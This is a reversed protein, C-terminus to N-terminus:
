EINKILIFGAWNVPHSLNRDYSPREEGDRRLRKSIFSRQTRALTDELSLGPNDNLIQYFQLMFPAASADRVRWLTGVVARSKSSQLLSEASTRWPTGQLAEIPVATDCASLVLLEPGRAGTPALLRTLDSVPVLADRGEGTLLNASQWDSGGITFHTAFHMIPYRGGRVANRLSTRTFEENLWREGSFLGSREGAKRVIGKLEEEVGPLPEAEKTGKSVGFAAVLPDTVFKGSRGGEAWVGLSYQEVLYREGDHVVAMPLNSLVRDLSLWITKIGVLRPKLPAIIERYFEQALEQTNGQQGIAERLQRIKEGLEDSAIRWVLPTIEDETVLLFTTQDPLVFSLLVAGANKTRERVARLQRQVNEIAGDVGRSKTACDGLKLTNCEPKWNAELVRLINNIAVHWAQVGDELSTLERQEALSLTARRADLENQRAVSRVITAVGGDLRDALELEARSMPIKLLVLERTLGERRVYEGYESQRLMLLVDAAEAERGQETFLKALWRYRDEHEKLFCERIDDPLDDLLRRADQLKNVARKALALALDRDGGQHAAQSARSLNCSSETLAFYGDASGYRQIVSLENFVAYSIIIPRIYNVDSLTQALGLAVGMTDQATSFDAKSAHQRAEAMYQESAQRVWSESDGNEERDRELIWLAAVPDGLTAAKFYLQRVRDDAPNALEVLQASLAALAHGRECSARMLEEVAVKVKGQRHALLWTRIYMKVGCNSRLDPLDFPLGAQWMALFARATENGREVALKLREFEWDGPQRWYQGRLSKLVRVFPAELSGAAELFSLVADPWKSSNDYDTKLQEDFYRVNPKRLQSFTSEVLARLGMTRFAIIREQDPLKNLYSLIQRDQSAKEIGYSLSGRVDRARRAWDSAKSLDRPIGEGLAYMNSLNMQASISGRSAAKEFWRVAEKADKQVGRGERYLVGLAGQSQLNGQEAAKRFWHAAQASDQTIGFGNYYMVGLNAQAEALGQLAAREYWQFAESKDEEVDKGEFYMGGLRLQAKVNGQEAAKRLWRLAEVQNKEAIQGLAYRTGLENQADAHGQEAAKRLWVLSEEVLENTGESYVLALSYQADRQGLEASRRLWRLALAHGQDAAQQYWRAAEAENPEVGRGEAYMKGLSYQSDDHGREAAKRYWRVAEADDRQVGNGNAYLVGLQYQANAIDQQAAMRYWHVAQAVDVRVGRGEAYRMALEYQATSHGQEAAHRYWESAAFEDKATAYIEALSIQAETLGQAAARKLWRLQERENQSYHMGLRYQADADGEQAGKRLKALGHGADTAKSLWRVAEAEDEDIGRGDAYMVGLMYQAEASGQDAAASFWHVASAEDKTTGEGEAYKMGLHYQADAHGQQAARGLWRVAEVYDKEIGDGKTYLLGVEYQAEANGQEASLLLWILAQAADPTVGDGDRYIGGLILQAAAHGREAAKLFWTFSVETSKETYEDQSFLGGLLFFGRVSQRGALYEATAKAESYARAKLYARALAALVIENDPLARRADTCTAIATTTDLQGWKPGGDQPHAATRICEEALLASLDRNSSGTPQQAVSAFAAFAAIIAILAVRDVAM